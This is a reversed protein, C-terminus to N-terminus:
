HSTKGDGLHHKVKEEAATMREELAELKYIAKATAALASNVDERLSIIDEGTLVIARPNRKFWSPLKM